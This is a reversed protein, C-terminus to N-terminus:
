GTTTPDEAHEVVFRAGVTGFMVDDGHSIPTPAHIPVGQVWTRNKSGLDTVVVDLGSVDIRAHVRSVGGDRIRVDCEADRGVTNAGEHLVFRRGGVRLTLVAAQLPGTEDNRSM